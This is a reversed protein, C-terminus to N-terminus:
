PDTQERRVHGPGDDSTLVPPGPEAPGDQSTVLPAGPCMLAAAGIAVFLVAQVLVAKCGVFLSKYGGLLGGVLAAARAVM